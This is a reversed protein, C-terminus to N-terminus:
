KGWCLNLSLIHM